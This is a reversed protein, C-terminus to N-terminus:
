NLGFTVAFITGSLCDTAYVIEQKWYSWPEPTRDYRIFPETTLLNLPSM